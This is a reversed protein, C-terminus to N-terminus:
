VNKKELTCSGGHGISSTVDNCLSVTVTTFLMLFKLEVPREQKPGSHCPVLPIVQITVKQAQLYLPLEFLPSYLVGLKVNM